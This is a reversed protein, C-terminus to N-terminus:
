DWSSASFITQNESRWSNVTNPIVTSGDTDYKWAATSFLTEGAANVFTFSFGKLDTQNAALKDKLATLGDGTATSTLADTQVTLTDTGAVM